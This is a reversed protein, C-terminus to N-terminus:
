ITNKIVYDCCKSHNGTFVKKYPPKVNDMYYTFETDRFEQESKLELTSCEEWKIVIYNYNNVIKNYSM